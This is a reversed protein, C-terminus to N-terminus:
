VCWLVLLFFCLDEHWRVKGCKLQKASDESVMKRTKISFLQNRDILLARYEILLARCEILLARYEIVLARYEIV